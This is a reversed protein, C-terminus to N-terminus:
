IMTEVGPVRPKAPRCVIEPPAALSRLRHALRERADLCQRETQFYLWPRSHMGAVLVLVWTM